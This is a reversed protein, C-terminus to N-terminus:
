INFRISRSHLNWAQKSSLVDLDESSCGTWTWLFLYVGYCFLAYSLYLFGLVNANAVCVILLWAIVTICFPVIYGLEMLCISFDLDMFISNCKKGKNFYLVLMLQLLTGDIRIVIKYVLIDNMLRQYDKICYTCKVM